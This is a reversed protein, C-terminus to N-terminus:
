SAPRARLGDFLVRLTRDRLTPDWGAHEAAEVHGIVLAVFDDTQIDDRVEHQRQARHLLQDLAAHARQQAEVLEQSQPRGANALAEAYARKGAAQRLIERTLAELGSATDDRAVVRETAEAVQTVRLVLLAELLAEKTPFHRFVTGIGVGAERAVEETSAEVGARSFVAEAAELM